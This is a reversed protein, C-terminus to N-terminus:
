KEIVRTCALRDHWCCKEQDVLCWFISLGGSVVSLAYGICRLLAGGPRLDRGDACVVRIGMFMKGVTQGQWAHMLWFYACLLFPYSLVAFFSALVLQPLLSLWHGKGLGLFLVAALLFCCGCALNIIFFDIVLALSRSRFGAYNRPPPFDDPAVRSDPLDEM